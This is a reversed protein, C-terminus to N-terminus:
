APKRGQLMQAVVADLDAAIRYAKAKRLYKLVVVGGATTLTVDALGWLRNVPYHVVAVQVIREVPVFNRHIILIGYRNAVEDAGIRYHYVAFYILPGLFIYFLIVALAAAWVIWAQEFDLMLYLILELDEHLYYYLAYLLVLVPLMLLGNRTYMSGLARWSLRRFPPEETM